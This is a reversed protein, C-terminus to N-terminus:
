YLVGKPYNKIIFLPVETLTQQIKEMPTESSKVFGCSAFIVSLVTIVAVSFIKKM